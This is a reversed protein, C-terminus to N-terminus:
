IKKCWGNPSTAYRAFQGSSKTYRRDCFVIDNNKSPNTMIVTVAILRDGLTAYVLTVHRIRETPVVRNVKVNAPVVVIQNNLEYLKLQAEDINVIHNITFMKQKHSVFLKDSLQEIVHNMVTTFDELVERDQQLCRGVSKTHTPRSKVQLGLYDMRRLAM